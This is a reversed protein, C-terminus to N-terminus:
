KLSCIVRADFATMRTVSLSQPVAVFAPGAVQLPDVEFVTASMMQPVLAVHASSTPAVFSVMVIVVVGFGIAAPEVGPACNGTTTVSVEPMVSRLPLTQSRRQSPCLLPPGAQALPVVGLRTM